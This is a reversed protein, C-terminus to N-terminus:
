KRVKKVRYPDEDKDLNHERRKRMFSAELRKGALEKSTLAKESWMRAALEFARSAHSSGDHRPKKRYMRMKDDWEFRYNRLAEIGAHCKEDNFWCRPLTVRGAEISSAHGTEQLVMLKVGHEYAQEVISRGNAAQLKFAADHPVFHTLYNFSKSALLDCYHKIGEGNNEYYDIFLVESPGVQYFWIVTADGYGLDWATYVPYNPDYQVRDTIRGAEMATQMWKGYVAGGLAAEFSCEFEQAYEDDSMLKRQNTLEEADLVNTESAKLVQVFWDDSKCALKYLEGLMNQWGRPKGTVDLWGKRDALCPMIITSLTSMPILQAEDISIGDFYIGNMREANEAGYLRVVANNHPLTISLETENVKGGLSIFPQAYYKLYAWAIDKAQVYSPALYGFRPNLLECQAAKKLLKNIRAVTKGCRRHAITLAYRKKSAHYPRFIERRQYPITIIDPM